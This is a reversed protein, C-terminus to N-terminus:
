KTEIAGIAAWDTGDFKVLYLQSIPQYDTASTKVRIGPRLMGLEMDLGAAQKMVNGRTLDDGCRRLVEVLVQAREYGAVNNQDRLSAEFNFKKMWELFEGVAPDKQTGPRLWGKSRANSIIGIAKQLGAPDLFAAISLSANPIFQLPRWGLDYAARIAATTYRGVSLNLFVDAGSGQLEAIQAAITPGLPFDGRLAEPHYAIEKVILGANKAGLGERVGALYERGTEDDAYWLAIKAAPKNQLIYKAYAAGEMKFTAFFGMTWPFHGADDFAAASSQVFLQPVKARNLYDRVALNAETGFSSFMLLVGDKEVLKRTLEESRKTAEATGGGASVAMDESHFEIRRGNVGGRENVMRFYAAEAKGVAGYDQAWGTYPSVNGIRIETDSAGPDYQKQARAPGALLLAAATIALMQLRILGYFNDVGSIGGQTTKM